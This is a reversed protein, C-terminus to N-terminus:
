GEYDPIHFTPVQKGDVDTFDYKEALEGVPYAGGSQSMIDPDAALAAVARGVYEVSNTSSFDFDKMNKLAALVRETRTFGPYISLVSINFKRLELAMGFALRDVATKATDYMTQHLFKGSDGASINIILGSKQRIMLPAVMQSTLFHAFVGSHFMRNWRWVPQKWFPNSFTEDHKEYGGWTNNVLLDLRKHDQKIKRVLKRVERERTHDCYFPIGKGGNNNVVDATDEVNGGLGDVTGGKRTRGTVYVTAGSQGLTKAIGKGIGRSAGTVLAVCNKLDPPFYQDTLDM